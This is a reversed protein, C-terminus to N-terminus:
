AAPRMVIDFPCVLHGGEPQVPRVLAPKVAGITDNELYPDDPFFVQTILPEHGPADVKFHIHAPRWPHQGIAELQDKFLHTVHGPDSPAAITVVGRAEAVAEAYETTFRLRGERLNSAVLAPLGPEHISVRGQRLDRGKAADNDVCIVSNGMEAFRAGTVLGVYGTGFISINM